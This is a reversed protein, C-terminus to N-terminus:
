CISFQPACFEIRSAVSVRGHLLGISNVLCIFWQSCFFLTSESALQHAPPNLCSWWFENFNISIWKGMLLLSESSFRKVNRIKRTRSRDVSWSRRFAATRLTKTMKKRFTRSCLWGARERRCWNRRCVTDDTRTTTTKTPQTMCPWNPNPCLQSEASNVYIILLECFIIM